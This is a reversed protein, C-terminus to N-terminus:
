RGRAGGAPRAGEPPPADGQFPTLALRFGTDRDAFLHGHEFEFIWQYRFALPEINFRDGEFRNFVAVGRIPHDFGWMPGRPDVLPASSANDEFYHIGFWDDVWEFGGLVDAVGYPSDGTPSFSGVPAYDAGFFANVNAHYRTPLADGWPYRRGDTGRAAKEWEAETPLRKGHYFAYTVAGSWTVDVAPHEEMGEQVAFCEGDWRIARVHKPARGGPALSGLEFFYLPVDVGEYVGVVAVDFVRALGQRVFDELFAAFERNTVKHRSIWYDGLRVRRPPKDVINQITPIFAPDGVDTWIDGMTFEGAPIWVMDSVEPRRVEVELEARLASERGDADLAAASFRAKGPALPAKWHVEREGDSLLEGASASWSWWVGPTPLPHEVRIAYVIRPHVREPLVRLRPADAAGLAGLASLSLSAALLPQARIKM